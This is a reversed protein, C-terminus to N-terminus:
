GTVTSGALLNRFEEEIWTTPTTGTFRRYDRDLHGHDSYGHAHALDAIRPECGSRLAGVLSTHTAEFRLLDALQKTGIGLEQKVLSSLHRTTLGVECAVEAVSMRGRTRELLHWAGAVERRPTVAHAHRDAFDAIGDAVLRARADPEASAVRSFLARMRAGMVDGGEQTLETLGSTPLGLVRRASLPHLAVQVGEQHDPRQLYVPRLHLAGLCVDHTNGRQAAWDDTTASCLLPADIAFVLTLTSSPLGRHPGRAIAPITETATYDFLRRVGHPAHLVPSRM